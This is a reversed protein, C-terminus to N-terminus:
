IFPYILPTIASSQAFFLILGIIILIILLPLLYWSGEIIFYSIISKIQSFINNKTEKVINKSKDVFSTNKDKHNINCIISSPIFWIIYIILLMTSLIIRFIAKTLYSFICKFYKIKSPIFILIFFDILSLGLLFFYFKDHAINNDTILRFLVFLLLVLGFIIAFFFNERREKKREKQQVTNLYLNTSFM